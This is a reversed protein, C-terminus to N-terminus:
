SLGQPESGSQLRAALLKDVTEARQPSGNRATTGRRPCDRIACTSATPNQPPPDQERHTAQHTHAAPLGPLPTPLPRTTPDDM